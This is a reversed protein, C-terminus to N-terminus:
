IMKYNPNEILKYKFLGRSRDGTPMTEVTHMGFKTKRLNRLQASVSSEPDGTATAIERLTRWQQDRMLDFIRRIQGALRIQDHKPDYHSGDFQATFHFETQHTM